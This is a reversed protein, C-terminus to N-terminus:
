NGELQANWKAVADARLQPDVRTLLADMATVLFLISDRNSRDQGFGDALERAIASRIFYAVPMERSAALETLRAHMRGSVHCSILHRYAM